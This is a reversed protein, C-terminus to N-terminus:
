DGLFFTRLWSWAEGSAMEGLSWQCYSLRNFFPKRDCYVPSEIDPLPTSMYKAPGYQSYVPIGRLLADCAVNSHHTVVSHVQNLQMAIPISADVLETGAVSMPHKDSPKPRYLIPRSTVKRIESVVSAEWDDYGYLVHSKPGMGALLIPSSPQPQKWPRIQQNFRKGKTPLSLFYDDPHHSRYCIKYSANNDNPHGRNWYGLDIVFYKEVEEMKKVHGPSMGYFIHVDAGREVVVDKTEAIGRRLAKAVKEARTAAPKYHLQVRM